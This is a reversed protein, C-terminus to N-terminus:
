YDYEPVGGTVESTELNVTITFESDQEVDTQGDVFDAIEEFMGYAMVSNHYRNTAKDMGTVLGAVIQAELGSPIKEWNALAKNAIFEANDKDSECYDSPLSFDFDLTFEEGDEFDSLYGELMNEIDGALITYPDRDFYGNSGRIHWCAGIAEIEDAVSGICDLGNVHELIDHAVLRGETAGQIEWEPIDNPVTSFWCLDGTNDCYEARFKAKIITVNRGKVSTLESKEM